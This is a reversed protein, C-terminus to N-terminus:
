KCHLRITRPESDSDSSYPNLADSLEEFDFWHVLEESNVCSEAGFKGKIDPLTRLAEFTLCTDCFDTDHAISHQAYIAASVCQRCPKTGNRLPHNHQTLACFESAVARCSGRTRPVPIGHSTACRQKRKNSLTPASLDGYGLTITKYM